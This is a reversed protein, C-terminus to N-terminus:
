FFTSSIINIIKPFISLFTVGSFHFVKYKFIILNFSLPCVELKKEDFSLVEWENLFHIPLVCVPFINAFCTDLVPSTHPNYSTRYSLLLIDLWEIFYPYFM